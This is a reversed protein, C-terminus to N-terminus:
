DEMPPFPDSSVRRYTCETLTDFTGRLQSRIHLGGGGRLTARILYRDTSRRVKNYIRADHRLVSGRISSELNKREIDNDEVFPGENVHPFYWGGVNINLHGPNGAERYVSLQEPCMGYRNSTMEYRGYFRDGDDAMAKLSPILCLAFLSLLAARKM